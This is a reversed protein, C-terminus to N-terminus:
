FPLVAMAPKELFTLDDLSISRRVSPRKGKGNSGVSLDLIAAREKTLPEHWPTEILGNEEAVQLLEYFHEAYDSKSVHVDIDLLLVLKKELKNFFNIPVSSLGLRRLYDTNKWAKDVWIKCALLGLGVFIWRWNTAHLQVGSKECLCELYAMFVIACSDPLDASSFVLSLFNCLQQESPVKGSSLAYIHYLDDPYIPHLREDFIDMSVLKSFPDESRELMDNRCIIAICQLAMNVDLNLLSHEGYFVTSCSTFKKSIKSSGSLTLESFRVSERRPVSRRLESLNVEPLDVSPISWKRRTCRSVIRGEDTGAGQNFDDLEVDRGSFRSFREGVSPPSDECKVCSLCSNGMGDSSRQTEVLKRGVDLPM